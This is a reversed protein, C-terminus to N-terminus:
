NDFMYYNFKIFLYLLNNFIYMFQCLLLCPLNINIFVYYGRLNCLFLTEFGTENRVM